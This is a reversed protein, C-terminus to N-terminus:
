ASPKTKPQEEQHCLARQLAHDELHALAAALALFVPRWYRERSSPLRGQRQPLCGRLEPFREALHIALHRNTPRQKVPSVAARERLAQDRWRSAALGRALLAGALWRDMAEAVPGDSRRAEVLAVTGVPYRDLSREVQARFRMEKETQSGCKRINLVKFHM